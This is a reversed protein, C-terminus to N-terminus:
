LNEKKKKKCCMNFNYCFSHLCNTQGLIERKIHGEGVEDEMFKRIKEDLYDKCNERAERGKRGEFIRM